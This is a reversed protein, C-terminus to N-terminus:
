LILIFQRHALRIHYTQISINNTTLDGAHKSIDRSIKASYEYYRDPYSRSKCKYLLFFFLAYNVADM